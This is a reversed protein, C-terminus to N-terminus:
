TYVIVQYLPLSSPQLDLEATLSGPVLFWRAAWDAAGGLCTFLRLRGQTTIITARPYEVYLIPSASDAPNSDCHAWLLAIASCYCGRRVPWTDSNPPAYRRYGHCRAARAPSLCRSDVVVEELGADRKEGVQM